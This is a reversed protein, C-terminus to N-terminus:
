FHLKVHSQEIRKSDSETAGKNDKKTSENDQNGSPASKSDAGKHETDLDSQRTPM